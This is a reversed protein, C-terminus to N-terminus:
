YNDSAQLPTPLPSAYPVGLIASKQSFTTPFCSMVYDSACLKGALLSREVVPKLEYSRIHIETPHVTGTSVDVSCGGHRLSM